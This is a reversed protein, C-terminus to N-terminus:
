FGKCDSSTVVPGNPIVVQGLRDFVGFEQSDRISNTAAGAPNVVSLSSVPWDQRLATQCHLTPLAALEATQVMGVLLRISGSSLKRMTDDRKSLSCGEVLVMLRSAWKLYTSGWIGNHSAKLVM